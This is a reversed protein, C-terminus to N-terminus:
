AKLLDLLVSQMAQKAKLRKYMRREIETGEINIIFQSLKQGPRIIRHNAQDYIDASNIPAYWVITNGATLTLGHSMTAPNAILGRLSGKQFDNFIQDRQAKPTGGHVIAVEFDKAMENAVYELAATFPVFVIVKGEAQEFIEKLVKIRPENPLQITGGETDYVCGTAIQVLKMAKVAENVALVEGNAHEFKLTVLMVNYAKRQETTLEVSRTEYMVPPLDVCEERSFRISPQMAQRVTDLADDRPIWKFQTIQKMTMDRFRGFYKPVSNPCVLRCQAWADTPANPTPTGTLGWVRKVHKFNVIKNLATWRENRNRFAAIEDIIITDIDTRQELIPILDKIKIGDHNILYIDAPENLLKLRKSRDGYLVHATLHQTHMFIEDAWTRELTSLPSIVLAKSVQGISRLYDFAWLTALTKGSGMANLVFARNNEVLFAATETQVHFPTHQGPWAYYLKVPNIVPYGLNKLVKTEEHKHPVVVLDRGRYRMVKASPIVQTIREPHRSNLIVKKHSKSILM